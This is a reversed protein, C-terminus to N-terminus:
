RDDFTFLNVTILLLSSVFWCSFHNCLFGNYFHFCLFANYLCFVVVVYTWSMLQVLIGRMLLILSEPSFLVLLPEDMRFIDNYWSFHYCLCGNYLHFCLFANCLQFCLFALFITVYAGMICISVYSRMVCNSVYSRLFFPLM